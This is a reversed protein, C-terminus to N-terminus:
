LKINKRFYCSNKSSEVTPIYQEFGKSLYLERALTYQQTNETYLCIIEKKSEKAQTQIFDLLKVGLGKGRFDKDVCFWGIWCENDHTDPETYLGITAIVKFSESEQVVWYSMKKIFCKQYVEMYKDKDLSAILNLKEYKDTPHFVKKILTNASELTAHTLPTIQM